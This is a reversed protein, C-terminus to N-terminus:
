RGLKARTTRGPVITWVDGFDEHALASPREGGLQEVIDPVTNSHGVILVPGHEAKLAAILAPTNAPDYTKIALGRATALPTATQRTRKFETIYIAAIPKGEFWKVLAQANQRGEATLDPDREGAPTDLHRMVYRPESVGDQAQAPMAALAVLAALMTRVMRM